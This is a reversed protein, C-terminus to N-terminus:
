RKPNQCVTLQTYLSSLSFINIQLTNMYSVPPPRVKDSGKTTCKWSTQLLTLPAIRPKQCISSFPISETDDDVCGIRQVLIGNTNHTTGEGSTM